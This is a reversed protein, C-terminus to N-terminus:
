TIGRARPLSSLIGSLIVLVMGAYALWPLPDNWIWVGLLTSFVVNAYALNSVAQTVGLRYARTMAIQALVATLGLGLLLGVHQLGPAHMRGTLMWGLAGCTSILSFYFVVRWDPEGAKGMARVNLYAVAATVGSCLGLLAPLWQGSALSPRLLLLTGAFGLLLALWLRGSLSERLLVTTILALFLPSTYNLTVATGLPLHAIAYFFLLLSVFGALARTIQLRWLRTRLSQGRWRVVVTIALLGVLSRYFVLEAPTFDASGLKVCVGMWGFLFGALLMWFPGSSALRQWM